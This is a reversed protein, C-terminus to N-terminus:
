GLPHGLLCQIQLSMWPWSRFICTGVVYGWMSCLIAPKNYQPDSLLCSRPFLSCTIFLSLPLLLIHIHPYTHYSPSPWSPQARSISHKVLLCGGLTWPSTWTDSSSGLSLHIAHFDVKSGGGLEGVAYWGECWGGTSDIHILLSIGQAWFSFESIWLETSKSSESIIVKKKTSM